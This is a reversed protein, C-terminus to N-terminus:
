LLPEKKNHCCLAIKILDFFKQPDLSAGGVLAGDVDPLMLLEAIVEKNVSGGYIIKLKDAKDAAYTNKIYTRIFNHVEQVQASSATLGTGIAWVPEYAIITGALNTTENLASDLQSKIVELTKNDKRETLNEGVCLIPTLSHQLCATLKKGIFENSECFVNRRESHGIISGELDLSKLM